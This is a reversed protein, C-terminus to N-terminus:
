KNNQNKYNNKIINFLNGLTVLSLAIVLYMTNEHGNFVFLGIFILASLFLSVIIITYLVELKKLKM